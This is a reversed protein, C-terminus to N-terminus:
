KLDYVVIQSRPNGFMHAEKKVSAIVLEPAGDNDVDAVRYGVIPGPLKKSMWKTTLGMKDRTLFHLTGGSFNRHKTLLRLVRSSNKCVMVEKEGDEDVDTIYIPSSVFTYNTEETLVDRTEVEFFTVSGGFYDESKWVREKASDYLRLYEAPGFLVTETKGTGKFDAFAFNFVDTFPPLSVSGASVFRNGERKLYQVGGQFGGDVARKQGILTEGQGPVDIVRFFWRQGDAIRKFSSGDWELVLSSIGMESVNSVYIEATGNRDQDGVSVYVYDPSWQGKIAKFQAFVKEKWKYVFVTDKNILVLENKGDGDVDGEDLAVIEFRFKQVHGVDRGQFTEGVGRLGGPGGPVEPEATRVTPRMYRGMIKENIDQAFQDVTPIVEDMGKSQNFATVLEESKTVDLIKADISVSEGFVTLSGTIVYDAQLAKGITLAKERDFPGKFQDATKKVRGKELIEVEGKWALRSALMDIIGKQLFALDRDANMTFPLIAVKKPAKGHSAPAQIFAVSLLIIVTFLINTNKQKM